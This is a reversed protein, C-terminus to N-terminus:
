DLIGALVLIAEQRTTLISRLDAQAKALKEQKQKRSERLETLAAKIQAASADSDVSKQLKEAAPEPTGFGSLAGGPANGGRGMGALMGLGGSLMSETKLELVKSLRGEIVSWEADNTIALQQRLNDTIRQQLMQQIQQPDFNSRNQALVQQNAAFLAGLAILLSPILHKTKM